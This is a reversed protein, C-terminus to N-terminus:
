LLVCKSGIRFWPIWNAGSFVIERRDIKINDEWRRTPRGKPGVLWFGTFMYGRGWTHWM